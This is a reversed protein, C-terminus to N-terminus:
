WAFSGDSIRRSARGKALQCKQGEPAMFSPPYGWDKTEGAGKWGLARGKARQEVRGARTVCGYLFSAVLANNLCAIGCPITGAGGAVGGMGSTNGGKRTKTHAYPCPLHM